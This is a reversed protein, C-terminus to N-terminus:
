SATGNGPWNEPLMSSCTIEAHSCRDVGKKKQNTILALWVTRTDESKCVERGRIAFIQLISQLTSSQTAITENMSDSLAKTFQSSVMTINIASFKFSPQHMTCASPELCVARNVVVPAKLAAFHQPTTLVAAAAAQLLWSIIAHNCQGLTNCSNRQTMGLSARCFHFEIGNRNEHRALAEFKDSECLRTYM